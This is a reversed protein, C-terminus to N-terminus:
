DRKSRGTAAGTGGQSPRAAGGTGGQSPRAAAGVRRRGARCPQSIAMTAATTSTEAPAPARTAPLIPGPCPREGAEGPPGPGAAEVESTVDGAALVWRGPAAAM